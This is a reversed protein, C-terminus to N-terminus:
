SVLGLSITQGTIYGSEPAALFEAVRCVEEITLPRKITQKDLMRQQWNGNESLAQAPGTMVMAPAIVNCTIGRPALERAAVKTMETVASKSASYASTGEEHLSTLISSITIIRGYGRLLMVKSVERLVYYVGAINTRLFSELVDGPTVTLLLAARVMGANCILVDIRQHAAKVSRIWERVQKEDGVDLCAHQYRPSDLAFPGRSCGAVAYDKALFLDALGRGIGKSTGTIVAVPRDGM